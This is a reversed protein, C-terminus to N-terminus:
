LEYWRGLFKLSRHYMLYFIFNLSHIYISVTFFVAFQTKFDAWIFFWYTSYYVFKLYRGLRRFYRKATGRKDYIAELESRYERYRWFFQEESMQSKITTIFNVLRLEAADETSPDSWLKYILLELSDNPYLFRYILKLLIASSVAWTTYLFSLALISYYMHFNQVYFYYGTMGLSHNLLYSWRTHIINAFLYHLAEYFYIFFLDIFDISTSRSQIFTVYGKVFFFLMCFSLLSIFFVSWFLIPISRKTTRDLAIRTELM